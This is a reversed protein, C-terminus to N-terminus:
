GALGLVFWLAKKGIEVLLNGIVFNWGFGMTTIGEKTALFLPFREPNGGRDM